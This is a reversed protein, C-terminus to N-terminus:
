GGRNERHNGSATAGGSGWARRVAAVLEDVSFPKPLLVTGPEMEPPLVPRVGGTSLVVRTEPRARRARILVEPGSAGPLGVDLVLVAPEHPHSELLTLVSPGDAAAKVNFGAQRLAQTVIGRVAPSDEGVIVLAGPVGTVPLDAEPAIAEPAACTPLTLRFSAGQPATTLLELDGGHDLAIERSVALGLGTGKGEGKTTFFPEFIRPRVAAPVGSGTDTVTVAVREGTADGDPPIPQAHVTLVGGVPMADRANIALNLLLQKIQAADAYVHRGRAADV